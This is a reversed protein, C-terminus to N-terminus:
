KATYMAPSTIPLELITLLTVTVLEEVAKLPQALENHEKGQTHQHINVTKNLEGQWCKNDRYEQHEKTM